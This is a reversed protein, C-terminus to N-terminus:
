LGQGEDDVEFACCYANGDVLLVGRGDPAWRVDRVVIEEAHCVRLMLIIV